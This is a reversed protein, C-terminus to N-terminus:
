LNYEDDLKFVFTMLGSDHTCKMRCSAAVARPHQWLAPSPPVWQPCSSNYCLTKVLHFQMNVREWSIDFCAIRNRLFLMCINSCIDIHLNRLIIRNNNQLGDSQCQFWKWVLYCINFKQYVINSTYDDTQTFWFM